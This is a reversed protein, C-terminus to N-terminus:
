EWGAPVMAELAPTVPYTAVSVVELDEARRIEGGSDWSM